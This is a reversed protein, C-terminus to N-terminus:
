CCSSGSEQGLNSFIFLGGGGFREIFDVKIPKAREFLNKNIAYTIDELVFVIDDEEPEDLVM